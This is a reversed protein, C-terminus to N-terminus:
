VVGSVVKNDVHASVESTPVPEIIVRKIAFSEPDQSSVSRGGGHVRLLVVVDKVLVSRSDISVEALAEPGLAFGHPFHNM